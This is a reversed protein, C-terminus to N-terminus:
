SGPTKKKREAPEKIRGAPPRKRGKARTEEAVSRKLAEMFNVVKGPEKVEVLEPEKGQAKTQIVELLAEDYRDRFQKPEFPRSRSAILQRALDLEEEPVPQEQIMEFYPEEGRVERAYHLTTLMLGRQRPNIAVMHERGGLVVRGIAVRNMERMAERLVGFAEEATPGDPALYYPTELYLPDLEVGDVFQVIEILRTTELKVKAFDDPELVVYRGKEYEYGKTMEERDVKGHVPCTYQYHLRQNCGKHLMNFSLRTSASVARYLRVPITILSLKLSGTWSTRLAM